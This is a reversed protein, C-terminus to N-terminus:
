LGAADSVAAIGLGDAHVESQAALSTPAELLWFEAEVDQSGAHLAFLRCMHGCCSLGSTMPARPLRPSLIQVQSRGAGLLVRPARSPTSGLLCAPVTDRPAASHPEFQVGFQVGGRPHSCLAGIRPMFSSRSRGPTM